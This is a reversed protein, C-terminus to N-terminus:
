LIFALLVKIFSIYIFYSNRMLSFRGHYLLLRSLYKFKSIAYDSNFAAQYGEKGFLGISTEKIM